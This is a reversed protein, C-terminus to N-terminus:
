KHTHKKSTSTGKLWNCYYLKLCYTNVNVNLGNCFLVHLKYRFYIKHICFMYVRIIYKKEEILLAEAIRLKKKENPFNQQFKSEM